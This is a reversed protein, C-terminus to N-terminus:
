DCLVNPPLLLCIIGPPRLPNPLYRLTGPHNPSLYLVNFFTCAIVGVIVM